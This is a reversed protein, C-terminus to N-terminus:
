KVCSYTIGDKLQVQYLQKPVNSSKWLNWLVYHLQNQCLICSEKVNDKIPKAQTSKENYQKFCSIGAKTQNIQKAM